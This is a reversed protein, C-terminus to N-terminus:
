ANTDITRQHFFDAVPSDGTQIDADLADSVRVDVSVSGFHPNLLSKLDQLNDDILRKVGPDGVVLTVRLGGAGLWLDSRINGIRDLQLHLSLRVENDPTTRHRKPTRIQLLGRHDEPTLNLLHSFLYHESDRQKLVSQLRDGIDDLLLGVTAKLKEIDKPSLGSLCVKQNEGDLFDKLIILIAKLDYRVSGPRNLTGPDRDTNSPDTTASLNTMLRILRQEFYAGCNEIWRKLQGAIMETRDDLDIPLCVYRLASLAQRVTDPLPEVVTGRTSEGAATVREIFGSLEKLLVQQRELHPRWESTGTHKHNPGHPLHTLRLPKGISEVRANIVTGPKVPFRVEAVVRAQGFDILAKGDPQIEIVEGRLLSGPHWTLARNVEARPSPAFDATIMRSFPMATGDICTSNMSKDLTSLFLM